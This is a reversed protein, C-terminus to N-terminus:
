TGSRVEALRVCYEQAKSSTRALKPERSLIASHRKSQNISDIQAAAAALCFSCHSCQLPKSGALTLKKLHKQSHSLAILNYNHVPPNRTPSSHAYLGTVRLRYGFKCKGIRKWQLALRCPRFRISSKLWILSVQMDVCGHHRSPCHQRVSCSDAKSIHHAPCM